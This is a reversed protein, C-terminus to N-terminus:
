SRVTAFSIVAPTSRQSLVGWGGNSADPVLPIFATSFPTGLKLTTSLHHISPSISPTMPPGDAVLLSVPLRFCRGARRRRELVLDIARDNGHEAIITIAKNFDHPVSDRHVPGEEVRLPHQLLIYQTRVEM